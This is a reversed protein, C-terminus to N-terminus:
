DGEIGFSFHAGGLFLEPGLPMFTCGAPGVSSCVVRQLFIGMSFPLTGSGQEALPATIPKPLCVPLFLCQNEPQLGEDKTTPDHVELSQLSFSPYFAPFCSSHSLSSYGAQEVPTWGSGARHIFDM